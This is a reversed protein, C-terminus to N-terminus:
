EKGFELPKSVKLKYKGKENRKLVLSECGM